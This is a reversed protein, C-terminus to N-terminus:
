GTMRFTLWPAAVALLDILWLRHYVMALTHAPRKQEQQHQGLPCSCVSRLGAGPQMVISQLPLNGNEELRIVGDSSGGGCWFPMAVALCQGKKSPKPRRPPPSSLLLSENLWGKARSRQGAGGDEEGDGHSTSPGKKKKKKKKPCTGLRQSIAGATFLIYGTLEYRNLRDIFIIHADWTTKPKQLPSSKFLHYCLSLACLAEIGLKTCSDRPISKIQRTRSDQFITVM